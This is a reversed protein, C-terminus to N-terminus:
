SGVAVNVDGRRRRGAEEEGGPPLFPFLLHLRVNSPIEQRRENAEERRM